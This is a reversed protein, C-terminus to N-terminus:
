KPAEAKAGTAMPKLRIDLQQLTPQEINLVTESPEYGATEVRLVHIGAPLQFPGLNDSTGVFVGDLVIRTKIPYTTLLLTSVEEKPYGANPNYGAQRPDASPYREVWWHPPLYPDTTTYPALNLFPSYYGGYFGFGGYAPYFYPTVYSPGSSAPAPRLGITGTRDSAGLTSGALTLAILAAACTLGVGNLLRNM